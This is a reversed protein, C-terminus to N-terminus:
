GRIDLASCLLLNFAILDKYVKYHVAVALAIYTINIYQCVTSSLVVAEHIPHKQNPQTFFELRIISPKGTM